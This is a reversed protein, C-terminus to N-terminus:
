RAGIGRPVVEPSGDVARCARGLDGEDDDVSRCVGRKALSVQRQLRHELASALIRRRSRKRHEVGAAALHAAEPHACGARNISQAGHTLAAGITTMGGAAARRARLPREGRRPVPVVPLLLLM